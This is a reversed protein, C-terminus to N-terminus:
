FGLVQIEALGSTAANSWRTPCELRVYRGQIYPIPIITSFDPRDATGPAMPVIGSGDVKPDTSDNSVGINVEKWGYQPYSQQNYNWVKVGSVTRESGLDLVIFHRNPGTPYVWMTELEVGQWKGDFAKAGPSTEQEAGVSLVKVGDLVQPSSLGLAM